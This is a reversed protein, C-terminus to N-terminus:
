VAVKMRYEPDVLSLSWRVALELEALQRAV